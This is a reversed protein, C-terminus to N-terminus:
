PESSPRRARLAPPRDRVDLSEIVQCVVNGKRAIAGIVSIKGSSHGTLRAAAEGRGQQSKQEEGRLLSTWRSPAPSRSRMAGCRRGGATACTGVPAGTRRRFGGRLYGIVQLAQHGEQRDADPLRDQVLDRLPKKTDQFITTTLVSFRYGNRCPGGGGDANKCVWHFPRAKLAYILNQAEGCRPCRM